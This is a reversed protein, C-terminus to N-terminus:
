SPCFNPNLLFIWHFHHYNKSVYDTCWQSVDPRAKIYMHATWSFPRFM